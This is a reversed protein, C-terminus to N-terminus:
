QKALAKGLKKRVEEGSHRIGKGKYPEPPYIRRVRATFEGVKQKDIGEIVIRNAAPVSVKLDPPISFEVPHSFGMNLVLSKGKMVAKYGVGIIELEKKFGQTVGEVINSILARVTGHLSRVKKSDNNRKVTIKGNDLEVTIAPPIELSLKGKKGEILLSRGEQKAKVDKPLNVPQKGIRSM